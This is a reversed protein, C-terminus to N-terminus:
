LNDGEEKRNNDEEDDSEHVLDILEKIKDKMSYLDADAIISYAENILEIMSTCRRLGYSFMWNDVECVNQELWKFANDVDSSEWERFHRRLGHYNVIYNIVDDVTKCKEVAESICYDNGDTIEEILKKIRKERSDDM